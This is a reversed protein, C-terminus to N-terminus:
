NMFCPIKKKIAQPGNKPLRLSSTAKAITIHEFVGEIKKLAVKDELEEAAAGGSRWHPTPWPGTTLTGSKKPSYYGM